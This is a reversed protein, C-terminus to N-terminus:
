SGTLRYRLFTTGQGPVTNLAGGSTQTAFMEIYDGGVLDVEIPTIAVSTSAGTLPSQQNTGLLTGSAVNGAANLRVQVTRVGTANSALQVQGTIEYKGPTRIWLRSNTTFTSHFQSDGSGDYNNPIDYIEADLAVATGTGNPISQGTAAYAYMRPTLAWFDAVAKMQNLEAATLVQGATFTAITPVSGM